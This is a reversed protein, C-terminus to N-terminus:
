RQGRVRQGDIYKIKQMVTSAIDDANLNNGNVNVSLSYNYVSSDPSMGSNIKSLNKVGYSDVASKKIVFEGPTLMAPITDTGMAYGGSAFLQPILGGSSATIYRNWKTGGPLNPLWVPVGNVALGVINNNNLLNGSYPQGDVTFFKQNSPGYSSIGGAKDVLADKSNGVQGHNAYFDKYSNLYNADYNADAGKAISERDGTYGSNVADARAEYLQKDTMSSYKKYEAIGAAIAEQASLFETAAANAADVVTTLAEATKTTGAILADSTKVSYDADLAIISANYAALDADLMAQNAALAAALAADFASEAAAIAADAAATTAADAADLIKQAAAKEAATKADALAKDAAEKEEAKKKAAAVLADAEAQAKDSAAQADAIIKNAAATADATIKDAAAKADAESKAVDIKSGSATVISQATTTIKSDKAPTAAYAGIKTMISTWEANIATSAALLGAFATDLDKRSLDYAKVKAEIATWAERTRGLVEIEKELKELRAEIIENENNLAAIMREKDVINDKTIKAIETEYAQVQELAISRAQELTYISNTKAKIQDQISLKKPDTDLSYIKQSLEFQRQKIEEQTLLGLEIKNGTVPDIAIRSASLIGEIDDKRSKELAKQSNSQALEVNSRRVDQMAKAAASIDGSSLAAALGIRNEEQKLIADNIDKITELAKAQKDYEKTILESANNVVDLDNSLASLEDQLEKIPENFRVEIERQLDNIEKQYKDVKQSINLAVSAQIDNIKYQLQEIQAEYPRLQAQLEKIKSENAALQAVDKTSRPDVGTRILDEQVAFMQNVMDLGSSAVQGFEGKNFNIQIDILKKSEIDKLYESIAGTSGEIAAIDIKGNKINQTFQKLMAPNGLVADIQEVSYGMSKMAKAVDPTKAFVDFEANKTLTDTIVQMKEMASNAAAIDKIFKKMEDSGAAGLTGAAIASALSQDQIVKLADTVSMGADKLIKFAEQQKKINDISQAAGMQAMGINVSNFAESLGMLEKSLGVINGDKMIFPTEKDKTNPNLDMGQFAKFEEASMGSIADMLVPSLNGQLMIQQLGNFKEFMRGLGKEADKTNAFASMISKLPNLADFAQDRFLKLKMGLDDLFSTASKLTDAAEAAARKKADDATATGFIQPLFRDIAKKEAAAINKPDAKFAEKDLAKQREYARRSETSGFAVDGAYQPNKKEFAAELERDIIKDFSDSQTISGVTFMAQFQLNKPLKSIANWNTIASDLTLNKGAGGAAEQMKVLAELTIKGDPFQKKLAAIEKGVAKLRPIDSKNTELDIKIGIFDPIKGLEEVASMTADADDKNMTKIGLLLEKQNEEEPILTLITSLRQLGETGQVKVIANLDKTIDGGTKTMTSVLTSAENPTLVDSTVLASIELTVKDNGIKDLQSQLNDAQIKLPANDKFKEQMGVKYAEMYKDRAQGRGSGLPSLTEGLSRKAVQDYGSSASGLIDAQNERLTKLGSDKKSLLDAIQSDIEAREKETKLTKKKIELNAIASDYQSSLADISGQSASLNQAVLGQMIGAAKGIAAKEKGKQWSRIATEIGGFIVTSVAAGVLAAPVGFGTAGVAASGATGAVRAAKAVKLATGIKGSGGARALAAEQSLLSAAGVGGQVMRGAQIGARAALLGGGIGGVALQGFEGKNVGVQQKTVRNLNDLAAQQLNKGTNILDVQVQLPNNVLNEGNPGLLQILRGRVDLELRADKLNRTLAIAISEAQDNTLVGQSVATGLQNVLSDVASGTGLTKVTTEFSSKLNKGFDSTELINNGFEISVPVLDTNRGARKAQEVQTVSMTNTIKGLAELQNTTMTMAEAQKQGEIINRKITSSQIKFVAALSLAAAGAIKLPSNFISMFMPILSAVSIAVMNKSLLQGAASDPQSAAIGQAVMPLMMAAMGIGMSKQATNMRNAQRMNIREEPTATRTVGKDDTVTNSVNGFGNLWGRFGRTKDKGFSETTGSVAKDLKEVKPTTKEFKSGLKDIRDGLKKIKPKDFFKDIARSVRDEGPAVTPATPMPGWGDGKDRWSGPNGGWPSPTINSNEFGPITDSIMSKILPMYKQSQKAPIVAEGPSLMAPVIDGAGKPGPVSFIGNAFGAVREVTIGKPSIDTIVFKGGFMRESEPVGKQSYMNKFLSHVPIVDQNKFSTKVTFPIVDKKTIAQDRTNKAFGSAISEESSWASTRMNFPKGVFKSLADRQEAGKLTTLIKYIEGSIEPPLTGLKKQYYSNGSLGTGRFFTGSEKTRLSKTLSNYKKLSTVPYYGDKWLKVLAKGLLQKPVGAKLANDIALNAEKDESYTRLTKITKDYEEKQKASLDKILTNSALRGSPNFVTKAKPSAIPKATLPIRGAMYGPVDGSIMSQILPRYKASQKAPIVAEGPSLMAPVIDGAGKPGPVSFLGKNAYILNDQRSATGFKEYYNKEIRYPLAKELYKDFNTFTESSNKKANVQALLAMAQARSQPHEANGYYVLAQNMAQTDEFLYEPLDDEANRMRKAAPTIHSLARSSYFKSVDGTEKIYRQLPMSTGDPLTIKKAPQTITALVDAPLVEKLYAEEEDIFQQQEKYIKKDKYLSRRNKASPTVNSSRGRGGSGLVSGVESATVTKGSIKRIGREGFMKAKFAELIQEDNLGKSKWYMENEAIKDEVAKLNKPTVTFKIGGLDFETNDGQFRRNIRSLLSRSVSSEGASFISRAAAERAGSVRIATASPGFTPMRGAMYGPVIGGKAFGNSQAWKAFGEMFDRDSLSAGHGKQRARLAIEDEIKKIAAPTLAKKPNAVVSSHIGHIERWNADRADELRKIMNQYIGQEEKNLKFSAITARLKPLTDDIEQIMRTRYEEATMGRPIDATAEAFFRKTNSGKVGLLNIRAQEEISPMEKSYTRFGSATDFVGANGQDVVNKGSVNAIQLDKDGRVTSALLQSFYDDKTFVGDPKAFEPNYPAESVIIKRKKQPDTPDIMTRITHEPAKLPFAKNTITSMREEALAATEDVYPKVFVKTGDPKQYLGGIGKVPFSHGTTAELQVGFDTPDMDAFRSAETGKGISEMSLRAKRQDTVAKITKPMGLFLPLRGAMHGPLTGDIMQGIFPAYKKAMDAPIVAEGPTLLAPTTDQNGTGPVSTVGKAFRRPPTVRAVSPMFMGPNTSAFSSMAVKAERYTNTLAVLSASELVYAASLAKHSTALSNSIAINELEENTLYQTGLAADKSGYALSQFGKRILNFMKMLNALGNAVLGVTMLLVPGIGAVAAIIIAVAKKIGEPANNFKDFLKVFFEIVPTLVKAFLEGVPAISAKLKEIAAQMKYMPSSEQTKLERQSLLALEEASASAMKLVRSAQSGEKTVNNLLASIRAFQYKGFVKEITQAKQLDTLPQLAEAFSLVTNRLNGQNDQVIGKLNIGLKAASESAAKSPNILSALGSKLANAGQEASIGGEKMATLFFALDEVNGGLQKIIPAVKPLANSLDELSLVTQNEVSNLFDMTKGLEESGISFANQLAITTELAKDQAVGGLVALKNAQKVVEELQKGSNGAAAADAAMKITESVKLGYKTYEKALDRINKLAKDSEGETTFIDGYVKRFRIAQTEIEKFSKIASGAFMALPITFGVMLQRGAWQTNKGFNLLKTSGDDLLKNFIQQRQIAMSMNTLQDNYNLNKPTVRMSNLAGSADKGLQVYQSQLAKVRKEVLSSITSFEKAYNKGFTKTSAMGYRYYERLSLKGSELSRSFQETATSMKGMSANFMGTANINHLLSKSFDAQALSAAKTGVIMSRNFASIQKDLGRLASMAQTTDINILINSNIDAM